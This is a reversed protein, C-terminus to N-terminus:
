MLLSKLMRSAVAQTLPTARAWVEDEDLVSDPLAPLVPLAVSLPLVVPVPVVAPEVVSFLLAFRDPVVLAALVVVLGEVVAAAPLVVVDGVVPVVAPEPVVEPV